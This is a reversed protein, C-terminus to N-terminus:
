FIFFDISKAECLLYQLGLLVALFNDDNRFHPVSASTM